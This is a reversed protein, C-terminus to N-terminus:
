KPMSGAPPPISSPPTSPPPTGVTTAGPGLKALDGKFAAEQDPTLSKACSDLEGLSSATLLCKRTEVPWKDTTCRETMVAKVRDGPMGKDLFKVANTSADECPAPDAAPRAITSPDGPQVASGGCGSLGLGLGCGVLAVAFLPRAM